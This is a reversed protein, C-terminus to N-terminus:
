APAAAAAMSPSASSAPGAVSAPGAFAASPAPAAPAASSASAPAASSAPAPAASSTPSASSASSAPSAAPASPAVAPAVAATAVAPKASATAATAGEGPKATEKGKKAKKPPTVKIAEFLEREVESDAFAVVGAGAIRRSAKLIRSATLNRERTTLPANARKTDQAEAASTLETLAAQLATVDAPLIGFLTVEEPHAELRDLIQQIAVKGGNVTVSRSRGVGYAHRVDIAAGVSRVATRVASVRRMAKALTQNQTETAVRVGIRAKIAGPVVVGLDALDQKLGPILGTPLRSEIVAQYTLALNLSKLGLQKIDDFERGPHTNSGIIPSTSPM